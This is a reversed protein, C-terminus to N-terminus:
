SVFVGGLGTKSRHPPEAAPSSTFPFVPHLRATCHSYRWSAMGTTVLPFRSSHSSLWGLTRSPPTAAWERVPTTLTVCQFLVPSTWLTLSWDCGTPPPELVGFIISQHQQLGVTKWSSNKSASTLPLQVEKLNQGTLFRLTAWMSSFCKLGGARIVSDVQAANTADSLVSGEVTHWTEVCLSTSISHSPKPKSKFGNVTEMWWSEYGRILTAYVAKCLFLWKWQKLKLNLKASSVWSELSSWELLQMSSFSCCSSCVLIEWRTFCLFTSPNSPCKVQWRRLLWCMSLSLPVSCQTAAAPHSWSPCISSLIISQSSSDLSHRPSISWKRATM